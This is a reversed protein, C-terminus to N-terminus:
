KNRATVSNPLNRRSLYVLQEEIQNGM